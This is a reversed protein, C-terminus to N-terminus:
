LGDEKESYKIFLDQHKESQITIVEDIGYGIDLLSYSVTSKTSEWLWSASPKDDYYTMPKNTKEGYVSEAWNVLEPKDGYELFKFLRLEVLKNELFIMDIPAGIFLKDQKCLEEGPLVIVHREETEIFASTAPLSKIASDDLKREIDSVSSGFTFKSLNCAAYVEAVAFFQMFFFLILTVKKM